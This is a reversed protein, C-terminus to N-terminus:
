IVDDAQTYWVTGDKAVAISKADNRGSKTPVNTWRGENSVYEWDTLQWIQGEENVCWASGKDVAALSTARGAKNPIWILARTGANVLRYVRSDEKGIAWASGDKGISIQKFLKETM